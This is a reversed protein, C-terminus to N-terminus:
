WLAYTGEDVRRRNEWRLVRYFGARRQKLSRIEDQSLGFRDTGALEHDYAEVEQILTGEENSPPYHVGRAIQRDVHVEIEHAITSGLWAASRFASDGIVVRITGDADLITAGERERMNGHPSYQVGSAVRRLDIGYVEVARRIAAQKLRAVRGLLAPRGAQETKALEADLARIEEIDAELTGAHASGVALLSVVIAIAHGTRM